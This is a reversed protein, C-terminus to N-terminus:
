EKHKEDMEGNADVVIPQGNEILKEREDVYAGIYSFAETYVQSSLITYWPSGILAKDPVAVNDLEKVTDPDNV